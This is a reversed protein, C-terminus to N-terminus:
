ECRKQQHQRQQENGKPFSSIAQCPDYVGRHEKQEKINEDDQAGLVAINELAIWQYEVRGNGYREQPACSEHQAQIPYPTNHYSPVISVADNIAIGYFFGHIQQGSGDAVKRFLAHDFQAIKM